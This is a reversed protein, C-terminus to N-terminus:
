TMDSEKCKWSSCCALSGQGGSDGLIQEFEHGSLRHHWGVMEDETTGKEEQRWDKGADPDKGALWSKGDPPWLVPAEAEAGTRGILLVSSGRVSRRPDPSTYCWKGLPGDHKCQDVSDGKGRTLSRCAGHFTGPSDGGVGVGRHDWKLPATNRESVQDHERRIVVRRWKRSRKQIGTREYLHLIM